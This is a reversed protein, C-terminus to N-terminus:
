NLGSVASEIYIVNLAVFVIGQILIFQMILLRIFRFKNKTVFMPHLCVCCCCCPPTRLVFANEDSCNKIFNSEGGVYEVFLTILQYAGFLFTFHSLMDCLVFAKPIFMSLLSSLSIVQYLGCLIVTHSLFKKPTHKKLNTFQRWFNFVTFFTVCAAVLLIAMIVESMSTLFDQVHPMHTKCNSMTYNTALSLNLDEILDPPNDM